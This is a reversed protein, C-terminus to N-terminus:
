LRVFSKIKFELFPSLGTTFWKIERSQDVFIITPTGTVQFQKSIQGDPDVGIQFKYGRESSVKQVLEPSEFSSIALVSEPAIENNEIMKNIRWLELKCPGCWTAWFVLVKSAKIQNLDVTDGSILHAKFNPSQANESQIHFLVNPVKQLIVFGLVFILFVNSARSVWKKM